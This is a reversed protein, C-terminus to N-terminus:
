LTLGVNFRIVRCVNRASSFFMETLGPSRKWVTWSHYHLYPPVAKTRLGILRSLHDPLGFDCHQMSTSANGAAFLTPWRWDLILESYQTKLPRGSFPWATMALLWIQDFSATAFADVSGMWYTVDPQLRNRLLSFHKWLLCFPSMAFGAAIVYPLTNYVQDSFTQVDSIYKAIKPNHWTFMSAIYIHCFHRSIPLRSIWNLKSRVITINVRWASCCSYWILKKLLYFNSVIM